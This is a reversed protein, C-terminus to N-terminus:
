YRINKKDKVRQAPEDPLKNLNVLKSSLFKNYAQTVEDDLEKLQNRLEELHIKKINSLENPWKKSTAKALEYFYRNSFSAVLKNNSYIVSYLFDCCDIKTNFSKIKDNIASLESLYKSNRSLTSLREKLLNLTYDANLIGLGAFFSKVEDFTNKASALHNYYKENQEISLDLINLEKLELFLEEKTKSLEVVTSLASILSKKKNDSKISLNRYKASCEKVEKNFLWKFLGAEKLLMYDSNVEKHSNNEINDFLANIKTLTGKHSKLIPIANNLREIEKDLEEENFGMLNEGISDIKALLTNIRDVLDPLEFSTIPATNRYFFLDKYIAINSENINFKLEGLSKELSKFESKSPTGYIIFKHDTIVKDKILAYRTIIDHNSFSNADILHNEKHKLFTSYNNLRSIIEDRRNILDNLAHKLSSTSSGGRSMYAQLNEFVDRKNAYDSHLPICQKGLEVTKLREYVVNLAATKQALFLVSKDHYLCNSIINVITQSKGTGPPGEIYFCLGRAADVVASHQSSDAKLSLAPVLKRYEEEDVAYETLKKQEGREGALWDFLRKKDEEAYEEFDLESPPIGTSKFVGCAMRRHVKPDVQNTRDMFEQFKNLYNCCNDAIQENNSDEPFDLIPPENKFTAKLANKLHTNFSIDKSDAELYYAENRSTIKVKLLLIPSNFVREDDYNKRKYKWELFGLSLYLTEIGKEREIEKSKNVISKLITNYRLFPVDSQLLKDKHKESPDIPKEPLIINHDPILNEVPPLDLEIRVRDKLYRIEEPELDEENARENQLMSNFKNKFARSNEDNLYSENDKLPEIKYKKDNLLDKLVFEPIEDFVNFIQGSGGGAIRKNILDNGNLRILKNSLEKLFDDLETM